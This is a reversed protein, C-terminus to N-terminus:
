SPRQPREGSLQQINGSLQLQASPTKQRDGSLKGRSSQVHWVGGVEFSSVCPQIGEGVESATAQHAASVGLAVDAAACVALISRDVIGGELEALGSSQQLPFHALSSSADPVNTLVCIADVAGLQATRQIFGQLAPALAGGALWPGLLAKALPTFVHLTALYGVAVALVM